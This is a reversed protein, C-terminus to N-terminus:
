ASYDTRRPNTKRTYFDCLYFRDFSFSLLFRFIPFFHQHKNWTSYCCYYYYYCKLFCFYIKNPTVIAATIRSSWGKRKLQLMLISMIRMARFTQFNTKMKQWTRMFKNINRQIKNISRLENIVNTDTRQLNLSNEFLIAYIANCNAGHLSLPQRLFFFFTRRITTFITNALLSRLTMLVTPCVTPSRRNTM